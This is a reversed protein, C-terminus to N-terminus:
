PSFTSINSCHKCTNQTPSVERTAVKEFKLPKSNEMYDCEMGREKVFVMRNISQWSKAYYKLQTLMKKHIKM